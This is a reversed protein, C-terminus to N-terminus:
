YYLIKVIRVESKCKSMLEYIDAMEGPRSGLEEEEITRREELIELADTYQGAQIRSFFLSM